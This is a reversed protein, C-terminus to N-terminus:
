AHEGIEIMIASRLKNPAKKELNLKKFIVLIAKNEIITQKITIHVETLKWRKQKTNIENEKQTKQFIM